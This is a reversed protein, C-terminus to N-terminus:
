EILGGTLLAIIRSCINDNRDIKRRIRYRGKTSSCWLLIVAISGAAAPRAASSTNPRMRGALRRSAERHVQRAPDGEALSRCWSGTASSKTWILGSLRLRRPQRWM